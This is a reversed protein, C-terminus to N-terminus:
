RFLSGGDMVLDGAHAYALVMDNGPMHPFGRFNVVNAFRERCTAFAKDCGAVLQVADGQALPVAPPAWLILWDADPGARHDRIPLRVGSPTVLVGHAFWGDARATPAVSIGVEGDFTLVSAAQTLPALAIGCQADGFDASCGMRYLRGTPQDFRDAPSRLEAIFGADARHVTGIESVDVLLHADPSAWDVLLTRVAAGDLRGSLLDAEGLVDHMLAGSVQTASASLGLAQELDDPRFGSRAAYTVGDVIVDADHETFGLQTGDRLTLQWCLCLTTAGSLRAALHAPIDRM